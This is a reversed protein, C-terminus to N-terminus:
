DPCGSSRARLLHGPSTLPRFSSSASFGQRTSRHVFIVVSWESASAARRARPWGEAVLLQEMGSPREPLEIGHRLEPLGDGKHCKCGVIDSPSQTGRAWSIGPLCPSSDRSCGSDSSSRMPAIMESRHSNGLLYAAWGPSSWPFELRVVPGPGGALPQTCLRETWTLAGPHARQTARCSRARPHVEVNEPEMYSANCPPHAWCRDAVAAGHGPLDNGTLRHVEV